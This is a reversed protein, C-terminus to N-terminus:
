IPQNEKQMEEIIRKKISKWMEKLDDYSLMEEIKDIEFWECVERDEEAIIGKYDGLSEALYMYAEVDEGKLTTYKNIFIPNDDLLRIEKGTEEITERVACAKIDEGNEMHGTPFSYDNPIVRKVLAVKKTHKDILFCGGKKTVM